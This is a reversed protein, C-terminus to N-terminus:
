TRHGEACAGEQPRVNSVAPTAWPEAPLAGVRRQARGKKGGTVAACTRLLLPPSPRGFCLASTGRSGRKGAGAGVRRKKPMVAQSARLYGKSAVQALNLSNHPRQRSQWDVGGHAM